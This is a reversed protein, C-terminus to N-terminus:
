DPGTHPKLVSAAARSPPPRVKSIRGKYPVLLTKSGDPEDIYVQQLAQALEEQSVEPRAAVSRLRALIGKPLDAIRGRLLLLTFLAVLISSRAKPDRPLNRLMAPDFRPIHVAM